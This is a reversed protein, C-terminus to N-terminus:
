ATLDIVISCQGRMRCSLKMCGRCRLPAPSQYKAQDEESDSDETLDIVIPYTRLPAAMVHRQVAESASDEDNATLPLQAEIPTGLIDNGFSSLAAIFQFEQRQRYYEENAEAQRQALTKNMKMPQGFKTPAM